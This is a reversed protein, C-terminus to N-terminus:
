DRATTVRLAENNLHLLDPGFASFRAVCGEISVSEGSCAVAGLALRMALERLLAGAPNWLAAPVDVMVLDPRGFKALGRTHIASAATSDSEAEVVINVECSLAFPRNAPWDAVDAAAWYRSTQADAVVTAGRAIAWRAVAWAAQLHGLDPGDPRAAIIVTVESAADLASLEGLDRLALTRLSGQRFGDFWGSDADRSLHRVECHRMAEPPIGFRSASLPVEPSSLGPAFCFLHFLNPKGGPQILPRPWLAIADTM